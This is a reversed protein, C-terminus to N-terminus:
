MARMGTRPLQAAAEASLKEKLVAIAPEVMDLFNNMAYMAHEFKIAKTDVLEKMRTIVLAAQEPQAAALDLLGQKITQQQEHNLSWEVTIKPKVGISEFWTTTPSSIAAGVDITKM